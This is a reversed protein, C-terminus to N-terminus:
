DTKEPLSVLITTGAGSSSEVVLRGNHAEVLERAIALGLGTGRHKTTFFPEFIKELLEDPIGPGNDKVAIRCEGNRSEVSLGIKGKGDLAHAANLLLNQFMTRLLEADGSISLDPGTIEIQIRRWEPDEALHDATSQLLLRIRIPEFRAERPRAFQLLDQSMVALSDLRKLIDGIVEKDEDSRALRKGLVQLAGGIGALPNRVEHAVVAAMQGLQALGERKRMSEEARRRETVDEGSSLTGTVRGKEDKLVANHWAVVKEEGDATRVPNEYYEVPEEEGSILKRFVEELEGANREPIATHFWNKGLIESSKWGLIECGKKNILRVTGERDLVLIAVQAIELYAQADGETQRLATRALMYRLMLYAIAWVALLTLGRNLVGVWFVSGPPSLLAGFITLATAATALVLLFKPKGSWLGLVMLITYPAGGAIGLPLFLDALFIANALLIATVVLGFGGAPSNGVPRKMAIGRVRNQNDRM